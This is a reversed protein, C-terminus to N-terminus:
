PRHRARGRKAAVRGGGAPRHFLKSQPEDPVQTLDSSKEPHALLGLSVRTKYVTVLAQKVQAEAVRFVQQKLDLDQQSIAGPTKALEKARDYDAQARALRAKTSELAAVNARLLAIQNNVDEITHQLKFRNSRALAVQGRVQDQTAVLDAKAKTFFATKLNVQIQYPEPDLQVLLEGKRVRNNDDVLVEAVQGQVRPAVFTVHSNVYADDTSETKWAEIVWPIGFYLASALAVIGLCCLFLWKM